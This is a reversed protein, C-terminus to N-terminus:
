LDSKEGSLPAQLRGLCKFYFNRYFDQVLYSEGDWRIRKRDIGMDELTHMIGDAVARDRVAILISDYEMNLLERVPQVRLGGKMESAKRDVLGVIDVYGMRSAQAYFERGVSGAGYLVVREHPHFLHYPFLFSAEMKQVCPSLHLFMRVCAKEEEPLASLEAQEEPPLDEYQRRIEKYRRVLHTLVAERAAPSFDDEQLLELMRRWSVTGDHFNKFRFVDTMISGPHVRRMYLARDVHRVRGASLMTQVTYVEDECERLAPYEIHNEELFKRRVCQLWVNCVFDLHHIFDRFLEQGKEYFGYERSRHFWPIEMSRLERMKENEFLLETGFYLIDLSDTEMAGAMFSLADKAILYDDSDMFYVYKGQAERIGRNRATGPGGHSQSIVRFRADRAAYSSLIELSGDTSADDVCIVEYAGMDQRLISDLCERLYPASNYVPIIISIRIDPMNGDEKLSACEEETM